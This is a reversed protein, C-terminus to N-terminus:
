LSSTIQQAWTAVSSFLVPSNDGHVSYKPANGERASRNPTDSPDGSGLDLIDKGYRVRILSPKDERGCMIVTRRLRDYINPFGGFEASSRQNWVHVALQRSWTVRREANM